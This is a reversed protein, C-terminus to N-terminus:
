EHSNTKRNAHTKEVYTLMENLMEDNSVDYIEFKKPEVQAKVNYGLKIYGKLRKIFKKQKKTM